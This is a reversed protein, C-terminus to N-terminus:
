AAGIFFSKITGMQVPYTGSMQAFMPAAGDGAFRHVLIQIGYPPPLIGDAAANEDFEYLANNVTAAVYYKADNDQDDTNREYSINANNMSYSINGYIHKLPLNYQGLNALDNYGRIEKRDSEFIVNMIVPLRPGVPPRFGIIASTAKFCGYRDTQAVVRQGMPGLIEVRVDAVGEYAIGGNGWQTEEVTIRGSPYNEDTNMSCGNYTVTFPALRNDAPLLPAPHHPPPPPDIPPDPVVPCYEWPDCPDDPGGEGGGSNVSFPFAKGAAQYALAAAPSEPNLLCVSDLLTYPCNPLDGANKIPLFTYLTSYDPDSVDLSDTALPFPYVPIHKDEIAQYHAATVPKFVMYLHTPQIIPDATLSRPSTIKRLNTMSFVFDGKKYSAGKVNKKKESLTDAGDKEHIVKNCGVYIFLFLM